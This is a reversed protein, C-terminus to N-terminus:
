RCRPCVEKEVGDPGYFCHFCVPCAKMIPRDEIDTSSEWEIKKMREIFKKVTDIM